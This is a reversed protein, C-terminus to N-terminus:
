LNKIGSHSSEIDLVIKFYFPQMFSKTFIAPLEDLYSFFIRTLIMFNVVKEQCIIPDNDGSGNTPIFRTIERQKEILRYNMLASGTTVSTTEAQFFNLYFLYLNNM